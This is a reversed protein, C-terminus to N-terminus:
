VFGRGGPHNCKGGAREGEKGGKRGGKRGGERRREKKEKGKERGGDRGERGAGMERDRRECVRESMEIEITIDKEKIKTICYEM